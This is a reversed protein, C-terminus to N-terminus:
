KLLGAITQELDFGDVNAPLDIAAVNGSRDIIYSVPIGTEAVYSAYTPSQGQKSELWCNNTKTWGRDEEAEVAAIHREAGKITPDVSVALYVVDDGWDGHESIFTQLYDMSDNCRACKSWWFKAVVVKGEFDSLKVDKGTSLDTVVFDPAKAGQEVPGAPGEASDDGCSNLLVVSFLLFLARLTKMFNM